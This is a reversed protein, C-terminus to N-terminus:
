KFLLREERDRATNAWDEPVFKWNTPTEIRLEPTSEILQMLYYRLDRDTTTMIRQPLEEKPIGAGKTLLNGGGNGRYSNIAVSYISDPSFPKGNSMGSIEIQQGKPKDLHVVYDIGAACDFNYSPTRLRQWGEAYQMPNQRFAIMTDNASHMTNVWGDYSYELYDKIESGKLLMTYLYNEYHYLKFMDSVTIDGAEIHTDFSLPAAFSIDARTLQLQMQQILNIFASPGFFAERSSITTSLNGIKKETFTKVEKAQPAFTNIYAPLPQVNTLSVIEGLVKKEGKRSIAIDAQAVNKGNSGPNIVLVEKNETNKVIHKSARHDHGCFIIDFGSVERAVQLAANENGSGILKEHGIGSHFLGVIIDAKEKDRLTPMWRRACAVMDEFAMGKWLSQPLWKPIAPTIMGLVAIRVGGREFITYPKWYPLGTRTDIANACLVPFHCELTWRDYVSHGTEIDHNGITAADYGIFNMADACVHQSKTDIFNYYYATPQGQLIDGNDLLLVNKESFLKRQEDVYTAIRSLGGETPQKEIFDYSFYNGHIDSSEIIRITTKKNTQAPLSVSSLM